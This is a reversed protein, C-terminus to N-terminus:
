IIKDVDSRVGHPTIKKIPRSSYTNPTGNLKGMISISLITKLTETEAM